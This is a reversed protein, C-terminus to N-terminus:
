DGGEALVELHAQVAAATAELDYGGELLSVLRGGCLDRAMGLVQGTLRAFGTQTLEMDGLPDRHHADFGASLLLFDPRFEELAPRLREELIVVYEDDGHGAGIPVNLTTGSGQGAGTEHAQGTGPYHPFQHVSFFFVDPDHYFASQTGNGHHVDWDVIAVRPVGQARLHRAAIAVHNFFCFGMATDWEAHHGPPRHLCFANDARGALVADVATLAGGSALLAADWTAPGVCTDPTLAHLRGTASLNRILDLHKESHNARVAEVPAPAPERWQLGPPGAHELHALIAELRQRREPHGDGMDHDLCRPSTLLLTTM